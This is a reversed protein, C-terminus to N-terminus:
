YLFYLYFNADNTTEDDSTNIYFSYTADNSYPITVYVTGNSETDSTCRIGTGWIFMQSVTHSSNLTVTYMGVGRRSMRSIPSFNGATRSFTVGSTSGNCYYKAKSTFPFSGCATPVGANLYIPTTSSGVTSSLNSITNNGSYYALKNLAGMNVTANLSYTMAKVANGSVYVGQTASGANGSIITTNESTLIKHQKFNGAEIGVYYPTGYHAIFFGGYPTSNYGSLFYGFYQSGNGYANSYYTNLCNRSASAKYSNFYNKLAEAHSNGTITAMPVLHNHNHSAAAAGIEALSWSVNGSGNVSKGTSGITLTRATGWNATTINATGDFNTGNISRATALKNASAVNSTTFAITEWGINNSNWKCHTRIENSYFNFALTRSYYTDGNGHNLKIVSYWAQSPADWSNWGSSKQMFQVQGSVGGDNNYNVLRATVSGNHVGDLLDADLGSGSGDNGAHWFKHANNFLLGSDTVNIYNSKYQLWTGYTTNTNIQGNTGNFYLTGTMTDGSKKVYTSDHNHTNLSIPVDNVAMQGDSRLGFRRVYRGSWHFSIAPSYAWTSQGTTVNGYERIQIAGGYSTDTSWSSWAMQASKSGGVQSNIEDKFPLIRNYSTGGYINGAVYVNKNFWHGVSANTNHHTYSSNENGISSTVGNMVWSLKGTMTDGSKSVKSNPDFNGSNWISYQSGWTGNSRSRMYLGGGNDYNHYIKCQYNPSDCHMLTIGYAGLTNDRWFGARDLTDSNGTRENVGYSGYVSYIFQSLAKHGGGGLLVYSDSSGVKKVNTFVATGNTRISWVGDGISNQSCIDQLAVWGSNDSNGIYLNGGHSVRAGSAMTGGALPLFKGDAWGTTAIQKWAEWATGTGFRVWVNSNDTFGFQASKGGSWDTISSGYKRITLLGTYTGGDSLGANGNTKFDLWVGVSREQPTSATNRSDIYYITNHYHEARLGTLNRADWIKYDTGNYRHQLDTEGSRIYTTGAEQGLYTATHSSYMVLANGNTAQIETVKLAGTMTDGARNVYTDDLYTHFNAKDIVPVWESLTGAENRRHWLGAAGTMSQALETYYGTADNRLIKIRNSWTNPIPSNNADQLLGGYNGYGAGLLGAPNLDISLAPGGPSNAGAYNHVHDGTSVVKGNSYLKNDTGIYVYQNSYTQPSTTQSESGILFLKTNVKDTAGATNVTDNGPDAAFTLNGQADSTIFVNDGPIFNIKKSEYGDFATFETGKVQFSLAYNLRDPKNVWEPIGSNGIVLMQGVSGNRLGKILKGTTNDFVVLQGVTSSSPGSVVGTTNTQVFTWKDKIQNWTSSTAAVTSEKCILLDGVEVPEGNIYGVSDTYVDPGFTVVYTNGVDAMPTFTGPSTTGAQIAGKYLMANNSGLISDAYDKATQIANWVMLPSAAIAAIVNTDNINENDSSPDPKANLIDQLKVHGYLKTSAGGYEPKLSLHIKPTAEGQVDGKLNGIIYGDSVSLDGHTVSVPGNSSIGGSVTLRKTADNFTLGNAKRVQSTDSSDGAENYSLLINREGMLTSPALQEVYDRIEVNHNEISTIHGTENVVINPVVFVSANGLNTSQGYSGPTAGSEKHLLKKNTIDWELPPETDVRNLANSSIIIRNGDGKRVSISEGATSMLFFSTGIQVKISGSTESVEVSPYGISFYTGCTWMERTDEIFVIPNLGKPISKILPEFIEKKKIYAFKSDIVM